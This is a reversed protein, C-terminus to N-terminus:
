LLPVRMSCDALPTFWVVDEGSGDVCATSASPAATVIPCPVPSMNSCTMTGGAASPARADLYTCGTFWGVVTGPIVYSAPYQSLDKTNPSPNTRAKSELFDCFSADATVTQEPPPMDYEAWVYEISDIEPVVPAGPYVIFASFIRAVSTIASYTPTSPATSKSATSPPSASRTVTSL